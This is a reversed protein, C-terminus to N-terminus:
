LTLKRWSEECMTRYFCYLVNVEEPFLVAEYKETERGTINSQYVAQKHRGKLSGM